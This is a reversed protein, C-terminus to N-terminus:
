YITVPFNQTAEVGNAPKATVQLQVVKGPTAQANAKVWVANRVSLNFLPNTTFYSNGIPIAKTNGSPSLASVIDTGNIKGYMVQTKNSLSGALYGINVAGNMVILDPDTSAVTVLVGGATINSNNQIDFWLVVVEGANIRSNMGTALGQTVLGPDSGISSLWIKLRNPDDMVYLGPTFTSLIKQNTGPGVGIWTSSTLEPAHYLGRAQLAQEIATLDSASLESTMKQSVAVIASAFQIFTVPSHNTTYNPMPLSRVAELVLQTAIRNAFVKDNGHLNLLATYIDWMAGLPIMGTNHIEEQSSFKSFITNLPNSGKYNNPFPWGLGDPYVYSLTTSEGNSASPIEFAPFRDCNPYHSDYVPCKHAGRRHDARTDFTGLAWRSFVRPDLSSHSSLMLDAFSLSMFDSVAENLAGAEDYMFQNLDITPSYLNVTTAHQLEHITVVGDDAYSAGPMSVSDGLCVYETVTNGESSRQYYANDDEMCHAVIPVPQKSHIYGLSDLGSRYVDGFYYAMAEQFRWDKQSYNFQNRSDYAGYDIDCQNRNLIDVYKGSLVGLGSLHSLSVSSSYDDLKLSTPFLTSDDSASMPDILFVKASGTEETTKTLSKPACVPSDKQKPDKNLGECGGLSLGIGLVGILKNLKGAGMKPGM